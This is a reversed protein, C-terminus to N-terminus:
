FLFVFARYVLEEPEQPVIPRSVQLGEMDLEM